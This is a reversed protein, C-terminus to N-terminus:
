RRERTGRGSSYYSGTFVQVLRGTATDIETVSNGQENAVYLEGGSVTMAIPLKFRMALGSIVGVLSGSTGDLETVSDRGGNAVFLDSGDSM